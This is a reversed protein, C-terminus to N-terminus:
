PSEFFESVLSSEMLSKKRGLWYLLTTRPIGLTDAAETQTKGETLQEEFEELKKAVLERDWHLSDDANKEVISDLM